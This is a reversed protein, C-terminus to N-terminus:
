HKTQRAASQQLLQHALSVPEAAPDAPHVSDKGFNLQDLILAMDTNLAPNASNRSIGERLLAVAPEFEDRVLHHLGQVFLRLPDSTALNRLPAWTTEAAAPAGSTLQLLGLQFRAIGYDPSLEIARRMADQAAEYQTAGALVSGRLFHLRADTPFDLLLADMARLGAVDDRALLAMAEVLQAEPCAGADKPEVV